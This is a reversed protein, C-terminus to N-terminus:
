QKLEARANAALVTAAEPQRLAHRLYEIAGTIITEATPYLVSIYVPTGAPGYLLGEHRGDARRYVKLRFGALPAKVDVICLRDPDPHTM